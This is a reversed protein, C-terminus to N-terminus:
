TDPRPLTYLIGSSWVYRTQGWEIAAPASQFFGHGPLNASTNCLVPIGSLKAYEDLIRGVATTKDEAGITQLRATGDLHVVAPIRRAWEPRVRHEFLMYPDRCGPDFIEEARSELCLPAVPRYNARKKLANVRDKMGGCVAPALISRNGLARPGLEARGHLVVVPEGEEHLIRALQAEDCERANYGRPVSTTGLQPGSYANWELAIGSDSQVMECCAMGLAAGSDNTFPPVWVESFLGSRRILSNWKINLGCGGSVCLRPHHGTQRERLVRALSGVLKQGIHEQCTAILDADSMDRLLARARSGVFAGRLQLPMDHPKWAEDILADYVPFAAPNCKGLAAYAMAKGPIASRARFIEGTTKTSDVRFEECQACFDLFYDGTLPMLAGLYTTRIPHPEIWYLRPFICGDWALVYSPAEQRAFPSSCYSGFVHHSVHSYSVYGGQLLGAPIGDFEYRRLLGCGNGGEVYPAAVVRVSTGGQKAFLEGLEGSGSLWGSVVLHDIDKVRVGESGLIQEIQELHEFNIHRLGGGVKEGEVSALLRNGDVLAVAGDHALNLGCVLM